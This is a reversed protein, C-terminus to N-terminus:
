PYMSRRVPSSHRRRDPDFPSGYPVSVPNRAPAPQIVLSDTALTVQWGEPAMAEIAYDGAAPTTFSFPIVVPTNQDTTAAARSPTIQLPLVAGSAQAVDLRARNTPGFSDEVNYLFGEALPDTSGLLNGVFSRAMDSLWGPPLALLPLVSLASVAPSGLLM